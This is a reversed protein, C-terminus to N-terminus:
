DAYPLIASVRYGGGDLPGASVAGGLMAARERMGRLGHGEDEASTVSGSGDDEISVELADVGYRVHVAVRAAAAHKRVNTLAEQVIRYASLEVAASLPRHPGALTLEIALGADRNQQALQELDALAPQPGREAADDEGRLLALTRHLEGMAARGLEAVAGASSRLEDDDLRTALVESQVVILSLTHAVVDHLERAIRVREEAVTRKAVLAEQTREHQAREVASARRVGIYLGVAAAAALALLLPPLVDDALGWAVREVGFAVALTLAAIATDRRGLRSGVSYVAVLAAGVVLGPSPAAVVAVAVAFLMELPQRARLGVAVIAVAVALVAMPVKAAHFGSAGAAFGAVSALLALALGHDLAAWAARRIGFGLRVPPAADGTEEM